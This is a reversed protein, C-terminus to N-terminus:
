QLSDAENILRCSLTNRKDKVVSIKESLIECDLINDPGSKRGSYINVLVRIDKDALSDYLNRHFKLGDIVVARATDVEVHSAKLFIGGSEKYEKSATDKPHGSFWADIVISEKDQLLRETAKQSLAVAISLAPISVSDGDPKLYGPDATTITTENKKDAANQRSACSCLMAALAIAVCHKVM